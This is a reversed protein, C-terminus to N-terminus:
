RVFLVRRTEAGASGEFRVYYAGAAVLRGSGNRGDWRVSGSAAKVDFTRLMRGGVDYITIRGDASRPLEWAVRVSSRFPNPWVTLGPSTAVTPAALATCQGHAGVTGCMAGDPHNGPLCPSGPLLQFDFAAADCFQPDASFNGNTGDHGTLLDVWDGGANGWADSCTIAVTSNGTGHLAEGAISSALITRDIVFWTQVEGYLAGGGDPGSNGHLTCDYLNVDALSGMIGGGLSDAANAYVTCGTLTATTTVLLVGAGHVATNHHFTCGDVVSTGHGGIALGGGIEADNGTFECNVFTHSGGLFLAGGGWGDPGTLSATVGGTITIGELHADGEPIDAVFVRGLGQADITVCDPDGTASLITIERSLAIDHELYTGCAVLVTDGSAASDVAAAITAADGPVGWTTALVPSFPLLLVALSVLVPRM